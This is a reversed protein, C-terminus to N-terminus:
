QHHPDRRCAWPLSKSKACRWKTFTKRHEPHCHTTLPETPTRCAWHKPRQSPSEAHYEQLLPQGTEAM